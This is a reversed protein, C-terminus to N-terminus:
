YVSRLHLPCPLHQGKFELFQSVTQTGLSFIGSKVPVKARGEVRLRGQKGELLDNAIRHIGEKPGPVLEISFDLHTTHGNRINMKVPPITVSGLLMSGYEPLLVQIRAEGSEVEKAIWTGFRGFYRVGTNKVTSADLLIDGQVRSIIGSPTFSDISISTPRFAAAEMAYSRIIEPALFGGVMIAIIVVCLTVLAFISPWRRKGVGKRPSRGQISRLLSSAPSSRVTGNARENDNHDDNDRALLPTSETSHNSRQSRQSQARGPIRKSADQLPSPSRSSEM